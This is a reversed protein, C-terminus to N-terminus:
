GTAVAQLPIGILDRADLADPVVSGNADCVQWFATADGLFRGAIQDLRNGSARRYYGLVAQVGPTPPLVAQVTAGNALVFSYQPQNAYRSGPFFM